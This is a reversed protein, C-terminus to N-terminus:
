STVELENRQRIMEVTKLNLDKSYYFYPIVWFISDALWFIIVVTIAVSILEINIHIISSVIVSGIIGGINLMVGNLSNIAGRLEPICVDSYIAFQNGTSFLVYFYGFIGLM